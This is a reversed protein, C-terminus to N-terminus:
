EGLKRSNLNFKNNLAEYCFKCNVFHVITNKLVAKEQRHYISFVAANDFKRKVIVKLSKFIKKRTPFHGFSFHLTYM